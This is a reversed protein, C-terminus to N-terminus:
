VLGWLFRIYLLPLLHVAYSLVFLGLNQVNVVDNLKEVSFDLVTGVSFHRVIVVFFDISIEM